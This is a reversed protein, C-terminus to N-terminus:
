RGIQQIIAEVAAPLNAATTELYRVSGPAAGGPVYCAVKIGEITAEQRIGVAGLAELRTIPDGGSPGPKDTSSWGTPLLERPTVPKELPVPTVKPGGSTGAVDRQWSDIALPKSGNLTPVDTHGVLSAPTSGSGKPPAAPPKGFGTPMGPTGTGKPMLPGDGLIPDGGKINSPTTNSCGAALVVAAVGLVFVGRLRRWRTHEVGTKSSSAM